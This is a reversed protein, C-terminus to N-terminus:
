KHYDEISVNTVASNKWYFCIRWQDNIRISHEGKRNGKLLEFRNNPPNKLDKLIVANDIMRLKRYAVRQIDTPLKKSRIGKAIKETEKCRFSKIM